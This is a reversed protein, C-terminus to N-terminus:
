WEKDDERNQPTSHDHIEQVLQALKHEDKGIVLKRVRVQDPVFEGKVKSKGVYVFTHTMVEDFVKQAVVLMKAFRTDECFVLATMPCKSARTIQM